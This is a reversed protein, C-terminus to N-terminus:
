SQANRALCLTNKSFTHQYSSQPLYKEGIQYRLAIDQERMVSDILNSDIILFHPYEVLLFLPANFPFAKLSTAKLIFSELDPANVRKEM